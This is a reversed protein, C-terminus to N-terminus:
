GSGLWRGKTSPPSPGAETNQKQLAALSQLALGLVLAIGTQWILYLALEHSPQGAANLATEAPPTLGRAHAGSWLAMGLSPGLKWGVVALAGGALSWFFAAAAHGRPRAEPAVIHFLVMLMVFAGVLGGVFLAGSYVLPEPPRSRDLLSYVVGTGFESVIEAVATAVLGAICAVISEATFIMMSWGSRMFGFLWFCIAVLLGFIASRVFIALGSQLAPYFL